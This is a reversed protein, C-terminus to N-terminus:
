RGSDSGSAPKKAMPKGDLTKAGPPKGTPNVNEPPITGPNRGKKLVARRKAPMTDSGAPVNAQNEQQWWIM